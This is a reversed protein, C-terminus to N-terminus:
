SASWDELPLGPIRAFERTNNTVVTLDHTVAISAIMLDNGAIMQGAKELWQRHYGYREAAHDDFPFSIVSDLLLNLSALNSAVNASKRAGHYLEAKVVSCM